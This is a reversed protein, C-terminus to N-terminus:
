ENMNAAYQCQSTVKFKPVKTQVVLFNELILPSTDSNIATDCGDLFFYKTITFIEYRDTHTVVYLYNFLQSETITSEKLEYAKRLRQFVNTSPASQRERSAVAKNRGGVCM